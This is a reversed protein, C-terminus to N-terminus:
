FDQALVNLDLAVCLARGGCVYKAREAGLMCAVGGWVVKALVLGGLWVRSLGGVMWEMTGWYLLGVKTSEQGLCLLLEDLDAQTAASKAQAAELQEALEALRAAYHEELEARMDSLRAEFKAELAAAQPLHIM